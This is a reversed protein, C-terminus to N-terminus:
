DKLLIEALPERIEDWAQPWKATDDPASKLQKMLKKLEPQKLEIGPRLPMVGIMTQVLQKEIEIKLLADVLKQANVQHPANKLIALSGPIFVLTKTDFLMLYTRRSKSRQAYYDDTDTIGYALEGRAVKEAVVSNGPLVQVGNTKLDRFYGLTRGRGQRAVLAAVWDSGTGFQPNSIGTVPNPPVVKGSIVKVRARVGLGTWSGDKAKFAQPIDKASPSVYPQLLGERNLLLTQLLASSWFVDGQPRNKEARIKNALGATKAAETDYLADIQLGTQKELQQIIPKAYVDDVSCYLVVRNSPTEQKNCGLLNVASVCLCLSFLRIFTKKM